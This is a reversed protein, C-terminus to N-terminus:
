EIRLMKQTATQGSAELRCFYVGAGVENGSADCGDWVVTHDAAAMEGDTLTRVLRGSLDFVRLTVRGAEPLSFSIAAQATFPNPASGRLVMESPIEPSAVGPADGYVYIGGGSIQAHMRGSQFYSSELRDWAEGDWRYVAGESSAAPFSLDGSADSVSVPGAIVGTMADSAGSIPLSSGVALGLMDTEMLVVMQGPAASGDEVALRAESVNLVKGEAESWACSLERTQSHPMGLSDWGTASITYNGAAWLNMTGGWLTGVFSEMETMATSDGMSATVAPGVWDFGYPTGGDTYYLSSYVEIYQTNGPNQMLALLIGKEATDQSFMGAIESAGGPYDNTMVIYLNDGELQFTGNYLSDLSIDGVSVITSDDDVVIRQLYWKSDYNNGSGDNQNFQGNFYVTGSPLGTSDPEDFAFYRASWAPSAMTPAVTTGTPYSKIEGDLTSAVDIMAFEYDTDDLFDYHYKGGEFDAAYESIANAVIFDDYLPIVVDELVTTSDAAPDMAMGLNMMGSYGSTAMAPLIDGSTNQQAYMFLMFAAGQNTMYYTYSETKGSNWLSVDLFGYGEFKKLAKGIGCFNGSFFDSDTFGYALYQGILGMGGLVWRDEDPNNTYRIYKAFGEPVSIQRNYERVSDPITAQTLYWGVNVYYIDRENGTETDGDYDAPWVYSTVGARFPPSGQKQYFDPIDAFVIYFKDDGNTYDGPAGLSSTLTGYIDVSGGEFDATLEDLEDQDIVDPWCIIPDTTSDAEVYSTDQVLWYAHETVARCTFQNLEPEAAFQSLDPVKLNIQDGVSLDAVATGMGSVPLLIATLIALIGARRFGRNSRM